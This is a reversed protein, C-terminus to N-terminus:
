DVAPVEVWFTAGQGEGSECGVRGSMVSALRKAVALGLGHSSEGATPRTSTRGFKRFLAPQEGNPIGSGNDRVDIRGFGDRLGVGLRIAGGRPSFKLANSVFNDVVQALLAPDAEAWVAAIGNPGTLTQQKTMATPEHRACAERAVVALDIRETRMPLTACEVAHAGLFDTVLGLMRTAQTHMAEVAATRKEEERLRGDRLLEAFGRVTALPARLDHAAIAMFEDKEANLRALEANAAALEEALRRAHERQAFHRRDAAERFWSGLIVLVGVIPLATVATRINGAHAAQNGLTLVFFALTGGLSLVVTGALMRYRMPLMLVAVVLVLITTGTLANTLHRHPEARITMWAIFSFAWCSVITVGANAGGAWRPFGRWFTAAGLGLWLPIVGYYRVCHSTMMLGPYDYLVRGHAEIFGLAASALACAAMTVRERMMGSTFRDEDYRAETAADEFRLWRAQRLLEEM